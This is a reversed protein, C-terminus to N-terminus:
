AAHAVIMVIFTLHMITTNLPHGRQTDQGQVRGRYLTDAGMGGCTSPLSGRRSFVCICWHETRSTDPKDDMQRKTVLHNSSAPCVPGCSSDTQISFEYSCLRCTQFLYVHIHLMARQFWLYSM